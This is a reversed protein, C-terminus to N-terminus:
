LENFTKTNVSNGNEGEIRSNSLNKRRQFLSDNRSINQIESKTEKEYTHRASSNRYKSYILAYYIPGALFGLYELGDFDLILACIIGLLEVICSIGFLKPKHIPVSGMTEKTRANVSVYHLQKKTSSVEQYSYLWVPLYASIWKQGKIGIAEKKWSVGRNYKTLDSNIAHRAIDRTQANVLKSLEDINTDRKESTYGKIYNADWKVSNEIDFPMISNIINTTKVSDKYNLKDKNSEVTLNDIHIDFEREVNYCDADYYRVYNDGRKVRYTRTQVEAHGELKAHANVDVVYYPFYVGKINETTFEQKFKPHAYFKRRGVFDEIMQRADSKETRFPLVYDPVAGNPIQENISLTNRCWHCRAQTVENTDIVVEAGCSTCKLTLMDKEDAIINKTGSGITLGELESVNGVLGDVVEPKFRHRCFNCVLMGTKPDLTIDTAGCKPCKSQGMGKGSNTDVIKIEEDNVINM